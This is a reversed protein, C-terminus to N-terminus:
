FLRGAKLIFAGYVISILGFLLMATKTVQEKKAKLLPYSIMSGFIVMGAVVGISYIAVYTILGLLTAVGLSATFLIILEDNSALGHIIGIGFMHRHYHTHIKVVDHSHVHEHGNESNDHRHGHFLKIGKSSFISAFGLIVLMVGVIIEFYVLVKTLFFDRYIYILLTVVGATAMHGVAWIISMKLTQSISESKVIYTSVAIIHDADFAHKVGLILALLLLPMSDLLM